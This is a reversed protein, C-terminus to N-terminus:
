SIRSYKERAAFFLLYLSCNRYIVLSVQQLFTFLVVTVQRIYSKNKTSNQKGSHNFARATSLLRDPNLTMRQTTNLAKM